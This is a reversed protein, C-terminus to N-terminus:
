RLDYRDESFDTM